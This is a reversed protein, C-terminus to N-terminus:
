NPPTVQQSKALAELEAIVRAKEEPTLLNSDSQTSAPGPPPLTGTPAVQPQAGDDMLAVPELPVAAGTAAPAVAAAVPPPPREQAFESMSYACGTVAFCLAGVALAAMPGRQKARSKEAM